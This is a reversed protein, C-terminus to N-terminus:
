STGGALRRYLDRLIRAGVRPDHDNRWKRAMESHDAGPSISRVANAFGSAESPDYYRVLADMGEPVTRAAHVPVVAAKGLGLALCLSGSSAVEHFRFLVADAACLWVALEEESLREDRVQVDQKERAADSIKRAYDADVPGGVVWLERDEGTPWERIMEVVG